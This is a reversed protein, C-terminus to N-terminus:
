KLWDKEKGTLTFLLRVDKSFSKKMQNITEHNPKEYGSERSNKKHLNSFIGTSGIIGTKKKLQGLLFLIQHLLKSKRSKAKNYSKSLDINCHYIDLFTEIKSWEAEPDRQLDDIFVFHVKNEDAIELLRKVQEGLMCAKRYSMHSPDGNKLGLTKKLSGKEREDSLTWAKNFDQELENGTYCKQAHLSPAMELPNRLCVLFKADKNFNLIKKCAFESFLYWVTAEAVIKYRDEAHSFLSLYETLAKPEGYPSYFFCPEKEPSFYIEEHQSLWKSITTTGCKPAGVIFLNPYKM